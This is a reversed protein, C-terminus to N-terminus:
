QRSIVTLKAQAVRFSVVGGKPLFRVKVTRTTGLGTLEIVKGIGYEQHWVVAGVGFPEDSRVKSPLPLPVEVGADKWGVAAAPGGQRYRDAIQPVGQGSHDIWEIQEGPLEALFSSPVPYNTQGRFERATRALTLYLEQKARTMAVFLLRREEEIEEQKQTALARQHPLIGEEVAALIVVPFELGKAAHMTMISVCDQTENYGDIDSSLTINALYDSLTLASDGEVAQKAHTILEEVNALRAQDEESRSENLMTRYGTRDLVQRLVEDPQANLYAHLDMMLSHFATLARSAKPTLGQIHNAQGCAALLGLDNREAYAKLHGLTVAGIGRPPENVVREFSVDDRPNILLRLYALIDRNEKREFFALGKVIQFPVRHNVLSQELGRTLANIRVLIAFDRFSRQGAKVAERIMRAIGDAEDNGTGFSLVQVKRGPENETLLDRSKRQINHSILGSAAGLISRTSRYNVNLMLVRAKPFDREFTLINRIDSGRFKYISQDPDGVVCLNPYDRCLERAIVYQAHNTDQYEDILVYRFRADLEKRLEANQQLLIAPWFLLDDFDMANQDKLRQQYLPYVRAVVKQFFDHAQSAYVNPGILENKAKSIAYMISDASVRQPDIQADELAIKIVRLRDTQDYITYNPDLGIRDAYERLLRAGMAHFTSIWLGRTSTLANIRNRMEGAAKNTFTIALINAPHIGQLLLYAVRRTIIRTKGSGPGALVLLPGDIHTVAERQVENLDDLLDSETM